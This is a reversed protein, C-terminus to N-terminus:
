LYIYYPRKVEPISSDIGRDGHGIAREYEAEQSSLEEGSCFDLARNVMIKGERAQYFNHHCHIHSSYNCFIFVLEVKKM